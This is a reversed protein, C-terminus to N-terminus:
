LRSEIISEQRSEKEELSHRTQKPDSETGSYRFYEIWPKFSKNGIKRGEFYEM